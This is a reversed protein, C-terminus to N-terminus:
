VKSYGLCRRIVTNLTKEVFQTSKTTRRPALCLKAVILQSRTRHPVGRTDQRTCQLSHWHMIMRAYATCPASIIHSEHLGGITASWGNAVSVSCRLRLITALQLFRSLVSNPPAKVRLRHLDPQALVICSSNFNNNEEFYHCVHSFILLRLIQDM